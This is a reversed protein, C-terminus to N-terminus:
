NAWLDDVRLDFAEGLGVHEGFVEYVGQLGQVKKVYANVSMKSEGRPAAERRGIGGDGPGALRSITKMLSGNGPTPDIHRRPKCPRGPKCAALHGAKHSDGRHMEDATGDHGMQKSGWSPTSADQPPREGRAGSAPSVLINIELSKRTANTLM